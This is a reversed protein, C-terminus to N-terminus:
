RVEGFTQTLYGHADFILRRFETFDFDLKQSENYAAQLTSMLSVMERPEGLLENLGGYRKLINIFFSYFEADSDFVKDFINPDKHLLLKHIEGHMKRACYTMQENTFVGYLYDM